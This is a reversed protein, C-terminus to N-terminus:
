GGRDDEHSAPYPLRVYPHNLPMGLYAERNAQSTFYVTLNGDVHKPQNAVIRIDEGSMPDIMAKRFTPEHLRLSQAIDRPLTEQAHSKLFNYKKHVLATPSQTNDQIPM